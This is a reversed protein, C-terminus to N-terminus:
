LETDNESVLRSDAQSHFLEVLEKIDDATAYNKVFNKANAKTRMYRVKEANKERWKQTARKQAETQGM